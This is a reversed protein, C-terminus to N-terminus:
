QPNCTGGPGPFVTGDFQIGKGVRQGPGVFFPRMMEHDEHSLIHCHWVYEGPKDFKAIVRTVEGPYSQVTDKLGYENAPLPKVAGLVVSAPDVTGSFTNIITATFPTRDLVFFNVLHLHIPHADPTLNYIEWIETNGVAPILETIANDYTKVGEALTGLMPELRGYSNVAEYLILQRPAAPNTPAMAARMAAVSTLGPRLNVNTVVGGAATVTAAFPDPAATKTIVRFQIIQGVTAPDAVPNAPNPFPQVADNRLLLTAGRPLDFKVLVDMREGPAIVLRDAQAATVDVPNDLFGLDTGIQYIHPEYTVPLPRGRFLLNDFYLAYFASDSGNLIRFRYWRNPEVDLNPWAVGNVLIVTGFFEPWTSPVPAGPLPPGSPYYLQPNGAVDVFMKDQIVMAGEYPTSPGGNANYPSGPLTLTAENADRIIYFGALGAYVNLRTIGLAHDHYWVTAAEQTNDFTYIPNFMRGTIRTTPDGPTFWADPLGDSCTDTHGGHLHTVIPVPGCYPGWKKGIDLPDAWTLTSDVPLLHSLPTGNETGEVTLNNTFRVNIVENTNVFFTRAPYSANAASQGYGWVKTTAGYGLGPDHLIEYAGIQYNYGTGPNPAFIFSPDLANPLPTTYQPLFVMPTVPEVPYARCVVTEPVPDVALVVGAGWVMVLLFVLLSLLFKKAYPKSKMM